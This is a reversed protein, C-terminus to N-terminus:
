QQMEAPVFYYFREHIIQDGEWKQVAVEEMKFRNGDAFTAEMWSEVTTTATEENSTIATVGSAHMEKVMGYWDQLAKRQAEKGDRTEGNAEVVQVKDAYFKELAEMSKGDEILNYMETAKQLYSM